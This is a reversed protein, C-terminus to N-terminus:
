AAGEKYLIKNELTRPAAARIRRVEEAHAAQKSPYWDVRDPQGTTPATVAYTWWVSKMHTGTIRGRPDYGHGIYRRPGTPRMTDIEYVACPRDLGTRPTGTVTTTRSRAIASCALVILLLGLAFLGAGIM